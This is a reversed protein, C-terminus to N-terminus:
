GTFAPTASVAAAKAAPATTTPALTTSTGPDTTTTTEALVTLTATCTSGSTEGTISYGLVSGAVTPPLQVTNTFNGSSDATNTGSGVPVGDKTQSFDFTENAALGTVSVTEDVGVAVPNSSFSIHCPPPVVAAGATLTSVGTIGVVTAAAMATGAVLGLLRKNM